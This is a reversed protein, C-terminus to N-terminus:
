RAAAKQRIWELRELAITSPLTCDAGILIGKSGAESILGATFTEIEVRSGVEILSGPFNAFGGIVARGGFIKKGEALSVQEVNVAWNYARASYDAWSELYNRAGAYGCIHLINIGGVRNAAELVMQDSPRLYCRYEKDTLRNFDPNQVSLYIGDAGGERIVGQALTALGGAIRALASTVLVPDMKLYKVLFEQGILLRLSTPPAFINYFYLTDKQLAVVRQVLEIQRVLWPHDKDLEKIGALDKLCKLPSEVPYSFFGDSMIKVLDPRAREIFNKHGAVNRELLGPTKLGDGMEEEALFHFWFGVPVREVEQNDFARLVLERNSM